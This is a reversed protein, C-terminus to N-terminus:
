LWGNKKLAKECKLKIKLVKKEFAKRKGGKVAFDLTGDKKTYSMELVKLAEVDIQRYSELAREQDGMSKYKCQSLCDYMCHSFRIDASKLISEVWDM